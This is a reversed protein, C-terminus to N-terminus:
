SLTSLASSPGAWASSIASFGSPTYKAIRNAPNALAKPQGLYLAKPDSACLGPDDCVPKMGFQACKRVMAASM